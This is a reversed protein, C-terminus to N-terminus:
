EMGRALPWSLTTQKLLVVKKEKSGAAADKGKGDHGVEFFDCNGMKEVHGGATKRSGRHDGDNVYIHQEGVIDSSGNGESMAGWANREGKWNGAEHM